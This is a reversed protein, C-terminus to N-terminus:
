EWWFQKNVKCGLQREFENLCPKKLFLQWMSDGSFNAEMVCWGKPTLVFDWGIYNIGTPMILALKRSLKRLESWHPIKYGLFKVKSNPHETYEEGLEGFGNTIIKGNRANIGVDVGGMVASAVFTGNAGIKIWPHIIRVKHKKRMTTVRIGNISTPHFVGISNDQIILEEIIINGKNLLDKDTILEKFVKEIDKDDKVSVKFVGIACCSNNQKVVFEKHKQAFSQFKEFDEKGSISIMERLYFPEYIKYTEYKDDCIYRKNFDNVQYILNLRKKHTIYKVKESHLLKYFNLYFYEDVSCGYAWYNYISKYFHDELESKSANNFHHALSQKIEDVIKSNYIQKKENIICKAQNIMEKEENTFTLNM